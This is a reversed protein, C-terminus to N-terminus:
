LRSFIQEPSIGFKPQPWNQAQFYGAIEAITTHLSQCQHRFTKRLLENNYTFHDGAIWLPLGTWQEVQINELEVSTLRTIQPTSRLYRCFIATLNQISVQPFSIANYAGEIGKNVSELVLGALDTSSTLSISHEICPMVLQPAFKSHYAWYYTRDTHDYPGIILAPRFITVPLGSALLIRECEAKRQGYSDPSRDVAQQQTCSLTPAEENHLEGRCRESDYVSCTSILIYHPSQGKLARLAKNLADPYYCSVDVVVDWQTQSILDIDSTERDGKLKNLDPFLQNDTQQRNFLTIELEDNELM